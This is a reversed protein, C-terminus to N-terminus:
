RKRPQGNQLVTTNDAKMIVKNDKQVYALQAGFAEDATVYRVFHTFLATLRTQRCSPNIM